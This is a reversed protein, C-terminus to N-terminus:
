TFLITNEGPTRLNQPGRLQDHTKKLIGIMWEFHGIPYYPRDDYMIRGYIVGPVGMKAM